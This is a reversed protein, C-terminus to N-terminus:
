AEPPTSDYAALAASIRHEHQQWDPRTRDLPAAVLAEVLATVIDARVYPTLPMGDMTPHGGADAWWIGGREGDEAAELWARKPAESM